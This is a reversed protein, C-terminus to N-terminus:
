ALLYTLVDLKSHELAYDALTKGICDIKMFTNKDLYNYESLSFNKIIELYYSQNSVKDMFLRVIEASKKNYFLTRFSIVNNSGRIGFLNNDLMFVFDCYDCYPYVMKIINSYSTNAYEDDYDYDKEQRKIIKVFYDRESTNKYMKGLISQFTHFQLTNYETDFLDILEQNLNIIRKDKPDYLNNTKIYAYLYKTVQVRSLLEDKSVSVTTEKGDNRVVFPSHKHFFDLLKTPVFGPANFGAPKREVTVTENVTENETENENESVVEAEAEAEAKAEVKAEAQQKEYANNVYLKIYKSVTSYRNANDVDNKTLKFKYKEILLKLLYEGNKDAVLLDFISHDNANTYYLDFINLELLYEIKKHYKLKSCLVLLLNNKHVLTIHSKLQKAYNEYLYKLCTIDTHKRVSYDITNFNENHKFSIDIKYEELAIKLLNINAFDNELLYSLLTSKYSDLKDKPLIYKKCLNYKQALIRLVEVDNKFYNFVKTIDDIEIYYSDLRDM